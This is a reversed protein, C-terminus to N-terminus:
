LGHTSVLHDERDALWQRLYDKEEAYSTWDNRYGAWWHSKHASEWKAWDREASPDILTWWAEVTEQQWALGLPGERLGQWREVLDDMRVEQIAWFVRNRSTYTNTNQASVRATYWNQGYSHNFDWPVYRFAPDLNPDNYLYSNKGASDESVTVYVLLFWDMFEEVEFWASAGSMMDEASSDGTFAVLERLDAFNSTGEKQEYGQALDSKSGGYVSERYFSADHNVAKYLNGDRNLGAHDVFEDDVKDLGVYLGHYAGDLYVVAFFTRPTLRHVDQHEAMALWTDYLLKQRVYSNDDFTSLLVLHNRSKEWGELLFEEDPFELTYSPKAFSASSAGRIKIDADWTEGQYTVTGAQYDQSIEQDTALHFVPLGWEETYTEPDVAGGLSPDDAVWFTVTSAEPVRDSSVSASFVVDHRGGDEAGSTWSFSGDFTAATPAKVLEIAAASESCIPQFAVTDGELHNPELEAELVCLGSVGTPAPLDLEPNAEGPTAEATLFWGDDARAAAVDTAQIPWSVSDALTGDPYLLQLDGGAEDLLVDTHDPGLAPDDGWLVLAEGPELALGDLDHGEDGSELRWDDLRVPEDGLNTLEVWDAPNGGAHTWTKSSAMFETVAVAGFDSGIQEVGESDPSSDDSPVVPDGSCGLLLVLM